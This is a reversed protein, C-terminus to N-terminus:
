ARSPARKLVSASSPDAAALRTRTELSEQHRQKAGALDGQEVLVDGLRELSVGVDRQLAALIGFAAYMGATIDAISVGARVGAGGPEGTISIM